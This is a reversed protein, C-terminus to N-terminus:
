SSSDLLSFFYCQLKGQTQQLVAIYEAQEHPLSKMFAEMNFSYTLGAKKKDGTAPQLFKKYTYLLSAFFRVFAARVQDPRFAVPCVLCVLPACRSHVITKCGSCKYMGEEAREDCIACITKEDCPQLQFCHGEVWCVGESNHVPQAYPQPVITSAAITSQAYVSPAYTSPPTYDSNLTTLSLNPTHGLFPASPRRPVGPRMDMGFSSSRRSAADFHASRRERLSAQLALGSDHRSGPTIPASPFHGSIPSTDRSPPSGTNFTSGTGPRDRGRSSYGRALLQENRAHVFANFVLPQPSGSSGSARGFSSSNLGAYKALHTPQAKSIYISSNESMFSDYPFTEIAYAPPGKPVGYRINHPAALQLLSMLKRKQQRPLPTPQATSEIIDVDLDVLVFDDSPLEVKEYRREIGVIYPCPAELAQILRAPLVPILVGTWQIPFLLDVLAKSALHLM